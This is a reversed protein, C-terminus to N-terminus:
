LNFLVLKAGVKESMMAGVAASRSFYGSSNTGSQWISGLVRVLVTGIFISSMPMGRVPETQLNQQIFCDSLPWVSVYHVAM